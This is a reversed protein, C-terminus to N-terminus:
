ILEKRAINKINDLCSELAASMTDLYEFYNNKQSSCFVQKNFEKFVNLAEDSMILYGLDAHKTIEWLLERFKKQDNKTIDPHNKHTIEIEYSKDIDNKLITLSEIVSIYSNFKKEWLIQKQDKKLSLNISIFIACVALISPLLLKVWEVLEM